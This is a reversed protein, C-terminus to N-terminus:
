ESLSFPMLMYSEDRSVELVISKRVVLCVDFYSILITSVDVVAVISLASPSSGEAGPCHQSGRRPLVRVGSELNTVCLEDM